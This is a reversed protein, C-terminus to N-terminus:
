IQSTTIGVVRFAEPRYTVTLRSRWKSPGNVHQSNVVLSGSTNIELTPLDYPSSVWGISQGHALNESRDASWINVQVADDGSLEILEYVGDANLDHEISALVNSGTSGANTYGVSLVLLAFIVLTRM